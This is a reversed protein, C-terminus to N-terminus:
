MAIVRLPGEPHVIVVGFGCRRLRWDKTEAGGSGDGDGAALMGSVDIPPGDHEALQFNGDSGAGM